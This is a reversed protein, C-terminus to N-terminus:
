NLFRVSGALLSMLALFATGTLLLLAKMTRSVAWTFPVFNHLETSIPLLGLSTLAHLADWLGSSNTLDGATLIADADPLQAVFARGHDRQREFHLDSVVLLRM